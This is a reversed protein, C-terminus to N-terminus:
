GERGVSGGGGELQGPIGRLELVKAKVMVRKPESKHM